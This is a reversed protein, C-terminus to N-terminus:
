TPKEPNRTSFSTPTAVEVPNRWACGAGAVGRDGPGAAAAACKEDKNIAERGEADFQAARTHFVYAVAL